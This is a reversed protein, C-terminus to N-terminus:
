SRRNARTYNSFSMEPMSRSQRLGNRKKSQKFRTSRISLKKTCSSTLMTTAFWKIKSERENLKLKKSVNVSTKCDFRSIERRESKM